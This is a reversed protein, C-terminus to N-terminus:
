QDKFSWGPRTMEIPTPGRVQVNRALLDGLKSTRKILDFGWPTFTRENWVHESLLPNTLAQSFADVAVMRLLLGPLPSDEVRDEAMLGPYFEVHDPDGYLDELMAAVADNTTIDHFSIARDMGFAVRYANYTALRNTRAQLVARDEIHLLPAATNLAGLEGAAQASAGSFAADLGVELLPRNDQLFAAIGIQRPPALAGAPWAIADPMLSHWRYLLSFEVTMWNPRNWPADWAVSPDARLSFPMPTIHNIYHEVVIKIFIPIVINRATEFVRNDDWTPNRAELEGAVRNHERLFLTNMMATFPTSNVRDGGKVAIIFV